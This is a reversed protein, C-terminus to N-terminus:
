CGGGAAGGGATPPGSTTGTNVPPVKQYEDDAKEIQNAAAAGPLLLLAASDPTLPEVKKLADKNYFIKGTEMYTANDVAWDAGNTLNGLMGGKAANTSLQGWQSWSGDYVMVDWGLMAELVFFATTAINGGRCISYVLQSGDLGIDKLDNKIVDAPKFRYNGTSPDVQFWSYNYYKGGKVTGEFVVYDADFTGDPPISHDDNLGGPTSGQAAVQSGRFDVPIGRNDRIGDMLEPLSARLDPQLNGIAQVTLTSDNLDTATTTLAAQSWAFNYGNLVKLQDKPWGYYRLTFYARSPTYSASDSSTIVITTNADIGLAQLRATMDAPKLPMNFVEAPGERRIPAQTASDWLQAGPIHGKDYNAKTTVDLLVVRESGQAKNVLGADMWAQLTSPEILVSATATAVPASFTITPTNGVETQDAVEIQNAAPNVDAASSPDSIAIFPLPAPNDTNNYPTHLPEIKYGASDLGNYHITGPDMYKDIAWMSNDALEGGALKYSSYKGLQSWSGDFLQVDGGLIADLAFFLPSTSYGTTCYVTVKKGPAWGKAEFLAKIEETSKFKGGTFLDAQNMYGGGVPHGDFVVVTGSVLQGPTANAPKGWYGGTTATARADLVVNTTSTPLTKIIEIMEGASARLDDNIGDLNRVSYTSPTVTPVETTMLDPYAAAFAADTGNLMKLREKPFGWYRFIWYARTAQFASSSNTTFVITTNKNIGLRQLVADMQAGTAVMPAANSVGEVRTSNLEAASVRCAGKIRPKTTDSNFDLIVVRSDFTGDSAVLGQDMWGKLTAPEILVNTAAGAVPTNSAVTPTDYNDPSCGSLGLAATAVTLLCFVRVRNM